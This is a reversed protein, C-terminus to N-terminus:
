NFVGKISLTEHVDHMKLSLMILRDIGMAIGSCKPLHTTSAVFDEDIDITPLNNEKRYKIDSNFRRLLENKDRLENYGNGLEVGQYYVEFRQAVHESNTDITALAAQTVPYDYVLWPSNGILNPEIISSFLINLLTDINTTKFGSSLNINYKPILGFLSELTATHPNIKLYQLFLDKYNIKIAPKCNFCIQLLETVEQMLMHYDFDVRYWELMTFEPNHLKGVEDGRFTQCIQYICGSNAALLRKMAYEPSTQMYYKANHVTTSISNIFRDTVTYKGLIPTTVETVNRQYFFDRISKIIEAKKKLLSITANHELSM